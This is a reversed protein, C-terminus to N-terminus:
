SLEEHTDESGMFVVFALQEGLVKGEAKLEGLLQLRAADIDCLYPEGECTRVVSALWYEGADGDSSPGMEGVAFTFRTKPLDKSVEKDIDLADDVETDCEVKQYSSGQYYVREGEWDDPIDGDLIVVRLPVSSRVLSVSGGSLEILVQPDSM